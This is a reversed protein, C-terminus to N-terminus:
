LGTRVQGRAQWVLLTSVFLPAALDPVACLRSGVEFAAITMQPRLTLLSFVVSSKGDPPQAPTFHPPKYNTLFLAYCIIHLRPLLILCINRPIMLLRVVLSVKHQYRQDREKKKQIWPWSYGRITSSRVPIYLYVVMARLTRGFGLVDGPAVYTFQRIASLLLQSGGALGHESNLPHNIKRM